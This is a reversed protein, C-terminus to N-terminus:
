PRPRSPKFRLREEEVIRASELVADGESFRHQLVTATAEQAGLDLVDSGQVDEPLRYGHQPRGADPSSDSQAALRDTCRIACSGLFSDGAPISKQHPPLLRRRVRANQLAAGHRKVIARVAALGATTQVVCAGDSPGVVVAAISTALDPGGISWSLFARGFDDDRRFPGASPRLSREDTAKWHGRVSRMTGRALRASSGSRRWISCRSATHLEPCVFKLTGDMTKSISGSGRGRILRVVHGLHWEMFASM